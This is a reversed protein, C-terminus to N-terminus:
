PSDRWEGTLEFRVPHEADDKQVDHRDLMPYRLSRSRQLRQVYAIALALNKSEGNIHVAHKDHDPEVALVSVQGQTDKSAAELEALLHTWPISLEQATRETAAAERAALLSNEPNRHTLRMAQALKLELGDRHQLNMQYAALAIGVALVGFALLLAGAYPTRARREVFDLHM